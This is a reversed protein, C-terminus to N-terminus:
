SNIIKRIKEKQTKAPKKTDTLKQLSKCVKSLVQSYLKNKKKIKQEKLLTAQRRKGHRYFIHLRMLYITPYDLTYLSINRCLYVSSDSSLYKFYYAYSDIQISSKFLRCEYPSTKYHLINTLCLNFSQKIKHFLIIQFHFDVLFRLRQKSKQKVNFASKRNLQM